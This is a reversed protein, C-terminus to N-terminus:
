LLDVASKLRGPDCHLYVTTTAISSHGLLEQIDSIAVGRNKLATAYSHRLSHAKLRKQLGANRGLRTIRLQLTRISVRRGTYGIFVPGATREGLWQRLPEVLSQPVPVFRDKAGKGQHVFASHRVLDLHEINLNALESVRLGLKLGVTAVILDLRAAHRRAPTLALEVRVQAQELLQAIEDDRLFNPLKRAM